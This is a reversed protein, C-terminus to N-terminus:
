YQGPFGIYIYSFCLKMGSIPIKSLVFVFCCSLRWICNLKKQFKYKNCGSLKSIKFVTTCVIFGSQMINTFLPCCFGTPSVSYPVNLKKTIRSFHSKMMTKYLESFYGLVLNVMEVPILVRFMRTVAVATGLYTVHHCTLERLPTREALKMQHHHLLVNVM